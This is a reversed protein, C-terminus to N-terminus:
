VQRISLILAFEDEKPYVTFSLNQCSECIRKLNYLGLGRNGGKTTYGKNFINEISPSSKCTNTCVILIDGDDLIIGFKLLKYDYDGSILEDIANDVMIGVVRCLDMRDVPIDDVPEAIDLGVEIDNALAHALKVSLLGKLEPIYIYKLRDMSDDLKSLSEEAYKLTKILHNKIDGNNKGDVFGMLSHLLNLHDHRYSRIEDYATELQQNHAELDKLSQNKYESVLLKQQANSYATIIAVAIFLVSLILVANVLSLLARDDVLRYIFTNIKTLLYVLTSLIFGYLAYKKKIEGTLQTYSKQLMNGIYKSILYSLCFALPIFIIQFVFIYRANEPATDSFLFFPIALLTNSFMTISISFLAYYASLAMDKTKKYAFLTLCFVISINGLVDDSLLPASMLSASSVAIASVLCMILFAIVTEAFYFKLKSVNYFSMFFLIVSPTVM